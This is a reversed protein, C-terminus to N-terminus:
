LVFAVEESITFNKVMRQLTQRRIDTTLVVEEKLCNFCKCCFIKQGMSYNEKSTMVM